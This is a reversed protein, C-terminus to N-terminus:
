DVGISQSSIIQDRVLHSCPHVPEFNCTCASMWSFLVKERERRDIPQRSICLVTMRLVRIVCHWLETLKSWFSCFLSNWQFKMTIIWQHEKEKLQYKTEKSTILPFIPRSKYGTKGNMKAIKVNVYGFHFHRFNCLCSIYM